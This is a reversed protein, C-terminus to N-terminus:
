EASPMEVMGSTASHTVASNEAALGPVRALVERQLAAIALEQDTKLLAKRNGM